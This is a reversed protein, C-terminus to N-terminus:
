GALANLYVSAIYFIAIIMFIAYVLWVGMTIVTSLAKLRFTAEEYYRDAQHRMTEPLRGAEEATEVVALFDTPFVRCSALAEAFSKRSRLVKSAEKARATWSTNGTVDLSLRLARAIPMPTDLSLHLALCFRGLTIAQLCPGVGPVRLLIADFGIKERLPKLTRYLVAALILSGFSLILFLVAGAAGTLGLVAPPQIGGPRTQAIFGLVFILLAIVLFALCLQIAPGMCQAVVKRVLQQQLIYYRELEGLVEPLHGTEEGVAALDRFLRPLTREEAAIAKQFSEGQEVVALMRQALRRTRLPGREALQGLVQRVSLGAALNHRLTRCLEILESRSLQVFM